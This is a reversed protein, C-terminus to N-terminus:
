RSWPSHSDMKTARLMERKGSAGPIKEPSFGLAKINRKLNGNMAYTVFLGGAKLHRCVQSLVQETWMEPQSGASFADFYLIDFRKASNYSSANQLVIELLINNPFRMERQMAPEYGSIFLDWTKKSVYEDYGSQGVIEPSLPNSEIGTYQLGLREDQCFQASLLFNLGTGFGVELITVPNVPHHRLFFKLGSELFVHQSEGVAGNMSHYHEGTAPHLLTKSGDATTVFQLKGM